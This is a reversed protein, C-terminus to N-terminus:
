DLIAGEAGRWRPLVLGIQGTSDPTALPEAWASGGVTRLHSDLAQVLRTVRGPTDFRRPNSLGVPAITQDIHLEPDHSHYAVFVRLTAEDGAGSDSLRIATQPTIRAFLTQLVRKVEARLRPPCYVRAPSWDCRIALQHTQVRRETFDRETFALADALACPEPAEVLPRARETVLDELFRQTSQVHNLITGLATVQPDTLPGAVGSYVQRTTLVAQRLADLLPSGALADAALEDVPTLRAALTVLPNGDVARFHLAIGQRFPLARPWHDRSVAGGAVAQWAHLLGRRANEEAHENVFQAWSLGPLRDVPLPPDPVNGATTRITGAADFGLFLSGFPALWNPSDLSMTTM